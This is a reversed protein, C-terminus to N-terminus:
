IELVFEGPSLQVVSPAGISSAVQYAQAVSTFPNTISGDGTSSNTESPIVYYVDQMSGHVLALGLLVPTAYTAITRM